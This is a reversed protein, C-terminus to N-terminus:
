SQMQSFELDSRDEIDALKVNQLKREISDIESQPVGSITVVGSKISNRQTPSNKAQGLKLDAIAKTLEDVKKKQEESAKKLEDNIKRM